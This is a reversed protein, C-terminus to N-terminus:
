PRFVVGTNFNFKLTNYGYLEYYEQNLLNKADMFFSLKNKLLKYEVYADLLHYSALDVSKTKYETLDYFSDKRSGFSKFNASVFIHDNVQYGLNLGITHKPKRILNDGDVFAYFSRITFNNTIVFNPEIEIGENNQDVLNIYGQSGYIIVNKIKRNFYNVRVDFKRGATFYHVGSQLNGSEEPKLQDNAGYQGYLENLTPARFGTSYNAFIKIQKNLLYSPNISYTIANGFQSHVNYRGGVEASFGGVNRLFFSAYSSLINVSPNVKRAKEDDMKQNQFNFGYLLQ